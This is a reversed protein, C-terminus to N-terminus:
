CVCVCVYEKSFQTLEFLSIDVTAACQVPHREVDNVQTTNTLQPRKTAAQTEAELPLCGSNHMLAQADSSLRPSWGM